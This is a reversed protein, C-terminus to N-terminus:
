VRRSFRISTSDWFAAVLLKCQWLVPAACAKCTCARLLARRALATHLQLCQQLRPCEGIQSPQHGALPQTRRPRFFLQDSAQFDNLAEVKRVVDVFEVTIELRGYPGKGLAECYIGVNAPSGHSHFDMEPESFLSGFDKLGM